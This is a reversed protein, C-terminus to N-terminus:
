SSVKPLFDAIHYEEKCYIVDSNNNSDFTRIVEFFLRNYYKYLM